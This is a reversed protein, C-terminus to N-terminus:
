YRWNIINANKKQFPDKIMQYLISPSFDVSYACPSSNRDTIFLLVMKISKEKKKERERM